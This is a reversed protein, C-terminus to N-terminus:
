ILYRELLMRGELTEVSQHQSYEMLVGDDMHLTFTSSKLTLEAFKPASLSRSNTYSCLCVSGAGLMSHLFKRSFKFQPLLVPQSSQSFQSHCLTTLGSSGLVVDLLKLTLARINSAKPSNEDM